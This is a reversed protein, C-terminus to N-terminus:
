GAQRLELRSRCHSRKFRATEFVTSGERGTAESFVFADFALLLKDDDSLKDTFIFRIPIFQAPRGRGESPVREVAHVESELVGPKMQAHVSLNAALHWQAAKLNEPPPSVAVENKPESLLREIETAHYSRNRSKVWEAYADGSAPEGSAQLWCKTSCKLFAAFLDSSIRM